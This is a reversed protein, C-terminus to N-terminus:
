LAASFRFREAQGPADKTCQVGAKPSVDGCYKGSLGGRLALTGDAASFEAAFAGAAGPAAAGCAVAGGPTEVCYAGSRGGRLGVKGGGLDVVSLRGAPTLKADKCALAGTGPQESCYRGRLGGQLWM